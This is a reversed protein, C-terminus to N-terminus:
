RPSSVEGDEAKTEKDTLISIITITEYIATFTLNSLM